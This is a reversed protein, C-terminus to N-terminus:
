ATREWMYVVVYPQLNNHAGGGGTNSMATGGNVSPAANGAALDDDNVPQNLMSLAAIQLNHKHAPMEGTTLTHTEAGGTAGATVFTGSPAKGVMVRGAGFAVWTGFGLLTSPNTAVTATYIAGIPFLVNGVEQVLISYPSATNTDGWLDGEEPAVPPTTGITVSAGGSSIAESVLDAWLTSPKLVIIQNVSHGIDSYGPAFEEITIISGTLHGKFVTITNEDLLGTSTDLSGSTAVFKNPWNFVSDTIIDMNGIGRTTTVIARVAEGDGNSAAIYASPGM